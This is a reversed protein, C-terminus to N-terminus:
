NSKLMLGEKILLYKYIKYFIGIVRKIERDKRTFDWDSTRTHQQM